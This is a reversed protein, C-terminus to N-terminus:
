TKVELLLRFGLNQFRYSPIEYNRSESRCYGAGLNWSGGRMVRSSGSDSGKPDIFSGTPFAAFRDQTWEWVNGHMDYLGWKNPKKLGVPHTTGESNRDFWGNDLLDEESDGFGYACSQGWRCSFEWEAETPLRYHGEKLSNLRQIFIQCDDWSVQEVPRWEDGQFRSPNIGMVMRWQGQTIPTTQLYYARTLVAFYQSDAKGMRFATIDPEVLVFDMGMLNTFRPAAKVIAAPPVDPRPPAAGPPPTHAKRLPPEFGPSSSPTEPEPPRSGSAQKEKRAIEERQAAEQKAKEAQKREEEQKRLREQEAQKREEEQRKKEAAQRQEQRHAQDAQEQEQRRKLDAELQKRREQEKRKEADPDRRTSGTMMLAEEILTKVREKSIDMFGASEHIEAEAHPTLFRSVLRPLIAIRMFNEEESRGLNPASVPAPEAADILKRWEGISEPRQSWKIELGKLLWAEDKPSIEVGQQSPPILEQDGMMRDHPVPPIHGTLAYYMTAAMAYIDTWPGQIGNTSYQEAPAFGPTLFALLNTTAGSMQQRAAGFDLLIPLGKSTIYLNDPKIDRHFSNKAHVEELAELLPLLLAKIEQPKLRGGHSHVYQALTEGELYEMIFYATNCEEFFHRIRVINPSRFSALLRAEAIFKDRGLKFLESKEGSYPIVQKGDPARSAFEAPFYEKIAVRTNLHRDFGLYTIGFGGHGLVKGIVYQRNLRFPPKLYLPNYELPQVYGCQSCTGLEADIIAFCELCYKKRATM